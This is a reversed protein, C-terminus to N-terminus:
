ILLIHSFLIKFTYKGSKKSHVIHAPRNGFPLYINYLLIYRMIAFSLYVM